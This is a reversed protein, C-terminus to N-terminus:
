FDKILRYYTTKPINLRARIESGSKGANQLQIIKIKKLKDNNPIFNSRIKVPISTVENKAILIAKITENKLERINGPWNYKMATEIAEDTILISELEPQKDILKQHFYHIISPIDDLIKRLPPVYINFGSLRYYLDDRFKCEERILQQSIDKNTASLLRVDIGIPKEAGVPFIEQYEIARLIKVQVLPSIDGIEDLFLTGGSAEEFYGKHDRQASTFSGARHGFLLSEALNESITSCNVTVFPNKARNSNNHINKAVLEKGTGTEGIILIPISVLRKAAIEIDNIVKLINKSNGIINSSDNHSIQRHIIFEHNNFNLTDGLQLKYLGIKKRDTNIVILNNVDINVYIGDMMRQFTFIVSSSISDNFVMESKSNVGVSLLNNVLKIIEKRKSPYKVLISIEANNDTYSNIINETKSIDRKNSFENYIIQFPPIEITYGHEIRVSKGVITRGCVISGYSSVDEYFIGGDSSHIMGHNKSVQPHALHIHSLLSRGISIESSDIPLVRLLEQNLYVEITGIM